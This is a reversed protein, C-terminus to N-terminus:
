ADTRRGGWGVPPPPSQSPPEGPALVGAGIAIATLQALVDPLDSALPLTCILETAGAHVLAAAAAQCEELTGFLGQEAPHGAIRFLEEAEARARAEASTRGVSVTVEALVPRDRAVRAAAAVMAPLDRNPGFTILIGTVGTGDADAPVAFAGAADLRRASVASAGFQATGPASASLEGVGAAGVSFQGTSPESVGAAGASALLGVPAPAEATLWALLAAPDAAAPASLRPWWPQRLWVGALGLRGALVAVRRAGSADLRGDIVVSLALPASRQSVSMDM